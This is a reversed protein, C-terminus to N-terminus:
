NGTLRQQVLSWPPAAFSRADRYHLTFGPPTRYLAQHLARTAPEINCFWGYLPAELVEARKSILHFHRGTTFYGPLRPVEVRKSSILCFHQDITLCGPLRSDCRALTHGGASRLADRNKVREDGVCVFYQTRKNRGSVWQESRYLKEGTYM